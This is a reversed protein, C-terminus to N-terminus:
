FGVAQGDTRRESAALYGDEMRYILQARGFDTSWRDAQTLSHGRSRLDAIVDPTVGHEVNVDLGQDVRWRPADAAAQPNQRHDAFRIMVQAHGQAQMSGGMVGYSMVPEGNRTVFAPIITHFPRKRPAVVNPHDPRLVFGYGRNQLAIGTGGVVVGSGFGSYNSQIYSVMMGSADAAALYVTGGRGPVGHRPTKAKKMDILRSRSRLYEKDLLDASKVRMTGPDSVYEYVDAFALKMAEIQLHLSDASDVPIRGLDFGELIGLAIQAAIGQGNPPIEHLTYGRYDHALPEVWDAAHEALDDVTLAGGHQSAWTAIKAALEGRYFAEGKTEAIHKLTKAHGPAVFTEGAEPARGRPMFAEAFGPQSQLEPVQAAWLRSITPTVMFGDSAYRIAPEFLDAFPLKGFKRSLEVWASVAGPVTVSDWGRNPMSARGKFRDLNWAAPSRGSANLGHLKRGDWLVCFADSGIGNSTPEVVTLTIAAALAADVANGGKLLMRLGAQAALPQSTAVVNRALVPM